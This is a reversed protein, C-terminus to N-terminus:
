IAHALGATSFRVCGLSTDNVGDRREEEDVEFSDDEVVIDEHVGLDVCSQVERFFQAELGECFFSHLQSLRKTYLEQLAESMILLQIFLELLLCQM